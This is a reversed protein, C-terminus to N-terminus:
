KFNVHAHLGSVPLVDNLNLTVITITYNGFTEKFFMKMIQYLLSLLLSLNTLNTLIQEVLLLELGNAM